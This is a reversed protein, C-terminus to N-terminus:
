LPINVSFTALKLMVLKLFFMGIFLWTFFANMWSFEMLYFSLKIYRPRSFTM